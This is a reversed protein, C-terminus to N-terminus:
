EGGLTIIGGLRDTSEKTDADALARELPRCPAVAKTGTCVQQPM